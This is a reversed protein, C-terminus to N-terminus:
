NVAGMHKQIKDYRNKFMNITSAEVVYNPLDNWNNVVRQSFFYKRIDLRSRNKHLKLHHGRTVSNESLRFLKKYDIKNKGTLTKYVELMDGRDRRNELSTLGTIKLREEYGLGKCEKIMRTARRQVKELQEIDKQLFPRWAQVCYELKPRVLTKYLKLIINKDRSVINRKIMGLQMNAKNAAVNCQESFKFTKDVIVGLDREKETAKLTTGCFHYENCPNKNGLHIVSCKESNFLMQWDTSWAELQLLDNSLIDTDAQSNIGKILKSDDAFKGLKSVLGCDIDNIFVLFLTPGLVSGQPVGSVVGAWNSYEGDVYVRQRRNSLWSQIWRLFKGGIGHAELKRGLRVHPVKDFAKSFDLYIIDADNGQDLEGTATEFFDILNTLCSKGSLFGHQTDKLLRHRDLHGVICEKIISELLKGIVSTLSIPRYNEAKERGGKKFISVVNADRWDQPIESTQVSLNFLKTLPHTLEHRLEYLLKGHIEDPGHSKNVNLSNLKSLVQAETIDFNTLRGDDDGNYVMTPTPISLLNEQTFVGSFYQNLYDAAAKNNRIIKKDDGILPGIKNQNSKSKSNIYSYFSKCDQKINDALKQEFNLKAAKIAQTSQKLKTLYIEYLRPNKNSRQYAIWAAKKQKRLKYIKNTGWKCKNKPKKKLGIFRNRLDILASKLRNWIQDVNQGWNIESWGESHITERIKNYDTSFYNFVPINKIKPEFGCNIVFRIIQHDSTGFPEEVMVNSILKEESTILLDLYNNQRTPQDVLQLLFNDDLCNVFPHSRDILEPKGWKLESYNFDGILVVRKDGIKSLLNYLIQNEDLKSDKPRYCVGLLFSENNFNISCVLAEPSYKQVCYDTMVVPSLEQKIFLALGGGCEKNNCVRDQRVTTYGEFNIEANEIKQSLWTENVAIIDPNEIKILLELESLKNCISRANMYVCKLNNKKLSIECTINQCNKGVINQDKEGITKRGTEGMINQGTEGVIIQGMEGVTNQAAEDANGVRFFGQM